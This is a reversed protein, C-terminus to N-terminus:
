RRGPGKAREYPTLRRMHRIIGSAQRPFTGHACDITPACQWILVAQLCASHWHGILLGAVHRWVAQLWAPISTGILLGAVHRQVVQLWAPIGTGIVLRAAHRCVAQLCAPHWHWDDSRSRSASSSAAMRPHRHWDGSRGRSSLRSAPMRPHRAPYPACPSILLRAAPDLKRVQALMNVNLHPRQRSPLRADRRTFSRRAGAAARTNASPISDLTAPTM